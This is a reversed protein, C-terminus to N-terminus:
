GKPLCLSSLAEALQSLMTASVPAWLLGLRFRKGTLWKAWWPLRIFAQRFHCLNGGWINFSTAGAFVYPLLAFGPVWNLSKQSQVGLKSGATACEKRNHLWHGIDAEAKDGM